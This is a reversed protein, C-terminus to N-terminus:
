FEKKLFRENRYISCDLFSAIFETYDVQGSNDFDM